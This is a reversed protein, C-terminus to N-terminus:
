SLRMEGADDLEELSGWREGWKIDVCIPVGMSEHGTMVDRLKGAFESAISRDVEALLSDHVTAVLKAPVRERLIWEVMPWLSATLFDAATGQVPTNIAAREAHGRAEEDADAVAWLPRRRAPRKDWWTRAEGTKRAERVKEKCWAALKKYRGWIKRNIAEVTAVSCGFEAAIGADTKGYLRGFIVAKIQSRYPDQEDKSMKDWDERKIGWALECCERAGRRHIDIGRRFDEIMEDDQSLMAAVRLEMQAYDAEILVTNKGAAVFSDRVMKAESDGKARPLNQLNPEKSSMRGSGAGDLLYTTHIRGDDRIHPLMGGGYLDLKDYKRYARLLRAVEHTDALEDLVDKDTSEAGSATRKVVPLELEKFLLSAIQKSSRPNFNGWAKLKEELERKRLQCYNHTQEIAARDVGIGWYEMWQLAVSAPRVVKKWVARLDEDEKFQKSLRRFVARTAWADCANYRYLVDEPVFGYAFAMASEGAAIRELVQRPAPYTPLLPKRVESTLRKAQYNLDRCVDSVADDSKAWYGGMGVLEAMTALDAKAEADLLRRILRTDALVRDPRGLAAGLDAMMAQNDYKVNQGILRPGDDLLERLAARAGEDRMGERTWTYAHRARLGLLTVCEVRFEANGAKGSTEVDYVIPGTARLDSTAQQADQGTEVLYTCGAFFRPKPIECTLAWKLDEEFMRQVFRNRLAAAPNATFFVPVFVGEDNVHWAWGRRVSLIGPCRGVVAQMAARGMCVIRVPDSDRVVTATFPRCAKIAKDSVQAKGPCCRVANDLAVPGTWWAAVLERLYRGSEGAFPRGAQDEARGPAEGILLVGGPQGEPNM